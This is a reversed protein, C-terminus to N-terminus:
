DALEKGATKVDPVAISNPGKEKSKYRMRQLENLLEEENIGNVPYEVLGITLSVNMLRNEIQIMDTIFSSLIREALIKAGEIETRPLLLIFRDDLYRIITDESRITRRIREVVEILVYNGVHYGYNNNIISFKHIDVTMMSFKYHNRDSRNVEAKLVRDLYNRNFANTLPDKFNREEIHDAMYIDIFVPNLIIRNREVIYDMMGVFFNLNKGLKESISACHTVINEFLRKADPESLTLRTIKFFIFKLIPFDPFTEYLMDVASKMRVWDEVNDHFVVLIDNEIESPTHM